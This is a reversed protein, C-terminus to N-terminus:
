QYDEVFSSRRKLAAGSTQEPVTGSATQNPSNNKKTESVGFSLRRVIVEKCFVCHKDEELIMLGLLGIIFLIQERPAKSQKCRKCPM